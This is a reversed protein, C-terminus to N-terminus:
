IYYVRHLALNEHPIPLYVFMFLFAHLKSSVNASQRDSSGAAAKASSPPLSLPSLTLFTTLTVTPSTVVSYLLIKLANSDTFFALEAVM